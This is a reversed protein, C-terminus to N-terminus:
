SVRVGVKGSASVVIHHVGRRLGQVKQTTAFALSKAAKDPIPPLPSPLNALDTGTVLNSTFANDPM